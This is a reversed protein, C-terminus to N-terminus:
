FPIKSLRSFIENQATSLLERQSKSPKVVHLAVRSHHDTIELEAILRPGFRGDPVSLQFYYDTGNAKSVITWRPPTNESVLLKIKAFDPSEQQNSM